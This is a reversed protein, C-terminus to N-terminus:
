FSLCLLKWHHIFTRTSSYWQGFRMLIRYHFSYSYSLCVIMFYTKQKNRFYTLMCKFIIADNPLNLKTFGLRSQKKYSIKKELNVKLQLLLTLQIKWKAETYFNFEFSKIIKFVPLGWEVRNKNKQIFLTFHFEHLTFCM